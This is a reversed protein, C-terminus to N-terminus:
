QVKELKEEMSGKLPKENVVGGLIWTGALLGFLVWLGRAEDKDLARSHKTPVSGSADPIHDFVARKPHEAFINTPIGIDQAVDEWFGSPAMTSAHVSSDRSPHHEDHLNHSPGGGHHTDVGAVVLLKPLPPESVASATKVLSSDWFDPVFPIQVDAELDPQSIDPLNINTFEELTETPHQSPPIGPIATSANRSQRQEHDLIRPILTSKNGKPSLGRDKLERKLVSTSENEWTRTLLVSSVFFRRQTPRTALAIRIM